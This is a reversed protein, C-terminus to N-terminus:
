RIDPFPEPRRTLPITGISPELSRWPGLEVRDFRWLEPNYRVTLGVREPVTSLSRGHDFRIEWRVYTAFTVSGPLGGEITVSAPAGAGSAPRFYVTFSQPYGMLNGRDDKPIWKEGSAPDILAIYRYVSAPEQAFAPAAGLAALVVITAILRKM